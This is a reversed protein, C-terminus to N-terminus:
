FMSGEAKWDMKSCIIPPALPKGASTAGGPRSSAAFATASGLFSRLIHFLTDFDVEEGSGLTARNVQAADFDIDRCPEGIVLFQADTALPFIAAVEIDNNM